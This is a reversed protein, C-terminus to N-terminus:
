FHKNGDHVSLTTNLFQKFGDHLSLPTISFFFVMKLLYITKYFFGIGDHPALTTNLIDNYWWSYMSHYKLIGLGTMLFYLPIKLIKM